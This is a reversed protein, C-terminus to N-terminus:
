GHLKKRISSKKAFFLPFTQRNLISKTRKGKYIYIINNDLL